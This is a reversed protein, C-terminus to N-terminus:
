SIGALREQLDCPRQENWERRGALQQLRERVDNSRVAVADVLCKHHRRRPHARALAELFMSTPLVLLRLGSPLRLM